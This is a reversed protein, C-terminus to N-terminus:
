PERHRAAPVRRAGRATRSATAPPVVADDGVEVYSVLGTPIGDIVPEVTVFWSTVRRRSQASVRAGDVDVGSAAVVELAVEVRRTRASCSPGARDRIATTLTTSLTRRAPRVGHRAPEAATWSAHRTRTRVATRRSRRAPRATSPSTAPPRPARIPPTPAPDHGASRRRGTARRLRDASGRRREARGLRRRDRCRDLRVGDPEDADVCDATAPSTAGRPAAARTCTSAASAARARSGGPAPATPSSTVTSASRTPSRGAGAGRRRRRELPLRHGRRRPGSPRRRPRLHGVGADLRRRGGGRRRAGAALGLTSRCARAAPEGDDNASTVVLAGAAVASSPWCRGCPGRAATACRRWRSSTCSRSREGHGARGDVREEHPNSPRPRGLPTRQNGLRGGPERRPRGRGRRGRHARSRRAWRTPCRAGCSPPAM